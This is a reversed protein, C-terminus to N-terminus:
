KVARPGATPVRVPEPQEDIEGGVVIADVVPDPDDGDYEDAIWGHLWLLTRRRAPGDLGELERELTRTINNLARVEGIMM